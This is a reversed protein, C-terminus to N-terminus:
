IECPGGNTTSFPKIKIDIVNDNFPLASVEAGSFTQLDDWEWSDPISFGIFHTEDGILDGEVRKLGAAIVKDVLKDIGWYPDVVGPFRPDFSNSISVDGGGKI